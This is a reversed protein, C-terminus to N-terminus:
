LYRDGYSLEKQGQQKIRVLELEIEEPTMEQFEKTYMLRDRLNKKKHIKVMDYFSLTNNM